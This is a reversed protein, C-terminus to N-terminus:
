PGGPASRPRKPSQGGEVSEIAEAEGSDPEDEPGMRKNKKQGRGKPAPGGGRRGIGLEPRGADAAVEGKRVRGRSFEAQMLIRDPLDMVPKWGM